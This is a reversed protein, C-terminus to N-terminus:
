AILLYTVLSLIGFLSALVITVKNLIKDIAKGKTKGFFTEAGGAISGSLSKDKSSQALVCAVLAVALVLLTIELALLM